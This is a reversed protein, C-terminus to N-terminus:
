ARRLYTNPKPSSQLGDRRLAAGM